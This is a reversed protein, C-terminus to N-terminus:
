SGKRCHTSLKVPVEDSYFFCFDDSAHKSPAKLSKHYFKKATYKKWLFRNMTSTQFSGLNRLIKRFVLM